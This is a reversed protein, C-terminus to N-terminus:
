FPTTQTGSMSGFAAAPAPPPNSSIRALNRFLYLTTNRQLADTVLDRRDDLILLRVEDGDHLYRRIGSSLALRLLEDMGLDLSVACRTAMIRLTMKELEGTV